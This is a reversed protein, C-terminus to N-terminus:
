KKAAIAYLKADTLIYLVGNAAVPTSKIPTEMEVKGPENPMKGHRFIYVDGDETGQYVKGDAYFPSGWINSKFDYSWQVKGTRADLCHLYGELEAAYLLGDQIAVTSCTRGFQHKRGRAPQPVIPGGFHWVLGSNKNVAAQPDFNEGDPSIDGKKTIDVCWLHGVGTGHDPNQGVGIYCRNEWIVPTAVFYNKTGRGGFNFLAGKPNCRFKWIEKGTEAEYGYLWGDGGPFIVQGKGNVVAYAPSTWQGDMIDDGLSVQWAVTGKIKDVALFSPAKANVVKGTAEDIGNSTVVFVLNGAVLPSCNALFHPYVGLDKVMDLKWVITGKDADACVVEARNSVYYLRKGDVAPTSAIGQQPYDIDMALKEHTIQWLFKGDAENFCMLVGRDDKEKPDRPRENNTGIFIKGGAIVPGGYSTNGLDAAWQINKPSGAKISWDDPINRVSPNTLNRAPTGGFLPWDEAMAAAGGLGALLIVISGMRLM